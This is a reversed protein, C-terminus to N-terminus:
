AGVGLEEIQLSNCAILCLRCSLAAGGGQHVEEARESQCFILCQLLLATPITWASAIARGLRTSLSESTTICLFSCQFTGAFGFSLNLHSLSRPISVSGRFGTELHGAPACPSCPSSEM